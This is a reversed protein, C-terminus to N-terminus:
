TVIATGPRSKPSCSSSVRSSAPGRRRARAGTGRRRRPARRSGIPALVQRGDGQQTAVRADRVLEADRELQGVEALVGQEDGLAVRPLADDPQRERRQDGPDRDREVQWAAADPRADRGIAPDASTQRESRYTSTSRSNPRSSSSRTAARRGPQGSVRALAYGEPVCPTGGRGGDRARGSPGAARPSRARARVRALALDAPDPHQLRADRRELRELGAVERDDRARREGDDRWPGGLDLLEGHGEGTGAHRGHQEDLALGAALDQRREARGHGRGPQGGQLQAPHIGTARSRLTMPNRTLRRASSSRRAASRSDCSARNASSPRPRSMCAAVM